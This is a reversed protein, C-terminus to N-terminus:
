VDRRVDLCNEDLAVAPILSAFAILNDLIPELKFVNYRKLVGLNVTLGDAVWVFTKLFM